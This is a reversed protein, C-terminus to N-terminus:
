IPNGMCDHQGLYDKEYLRKTIDFMHEEGGCILAIMSHMKLGCSRLVDGIARLHPKPSSEWEVSMKYINTTDLIVPFLLRQNKLYFSHNYLLAACFFVSIIQEKSMRPRGDQMTDILDDIAHVYGYWLEGFSMAEENGKCLEYNWKRAEAAEQPQIPTVVNPGNEAHLSSLLHQEQLRWMGRGLDPKELIMKRAQEIQSANSLRPLVLDPICGYHFHYYADKQTDTFATGGIAHYLLSCTDHFHPKGNFPLCLPYILSAMPNFPTEQLMGSRYEAVGEKVKSPNIYLLSGHLRSRTIAGTFEDHFEPMRWGALASEFEWHEAKSYFIIDTDCIWFPDQESEILSEIWRHHITEPRNFVACGAELATSQINPCYSECDGNIHATIKATPFGVRVTKFVLETM